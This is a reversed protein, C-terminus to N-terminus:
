RWTADFALMSCDAIWTQRKRKVEWDKTAEIDNSQVLVHQIHDLSM